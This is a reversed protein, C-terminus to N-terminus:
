REIGLQERVIADPDRSRHRQLSLEAMLGLSILQVSLIVTMIGFLLLPRDGIPRYGLFWLVVLYTLAAIGFLGSLIGLGGFLHGPRQLYRTITLATLLDLFGHAYRRFGYKSVGHARKHHRVAVDVVKFGKEYALVPIYRHLEGHIELAEVVERRYAKLGCNFDNLKLGSVKATIANFVRSPITKELGDQRNQKWGSVLDFGEDLKAILKPIEEPEDQLDADMTVIVDGVSQEFGAALAATKGFNKRFLIGRVREPERAYLAEIRDWSRDSSGDDIFIIEYDHVAMSTIVTSVKEFLPRITQEEDLVPVVVSIAKRSM